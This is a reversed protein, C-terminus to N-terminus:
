LTYELELLNRRKPKKFIAPPRAPGPAISYPIVRIGTREQTQRREEILEHYLPKPLRVHLYYDLSEAYKLLVEENTLVAASPLARYHRTPRQLGKSLTHPPADRTRM